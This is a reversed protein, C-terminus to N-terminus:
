WFRELVRRHTKFIGFHGSSWDFHSYRLVEQRLNQPVIVFILVKGLVKVEVLAVFDLSLYINKLTGNM